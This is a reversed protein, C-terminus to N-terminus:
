RAMRRWPQWCVLSWVILAGWALGEIALLVSFLRQPEYFLEFAHAGNLTPLIWGNAFGDARFHLESNLPTGDVRLSWGDDYADTFVLAGGNRAVLTGAIDTASRRNFSRVTSFGRARRPGHLTRCRARRPSAFAAVVRASGIPMSLRRHPQWTFPARGSGTVVATLLLNGSAERLAASSQTVIAADLPKVLQPDAYGFRYASVWANAPNSDIISPQPLSYDRCHSAIDADVPNPRSELAYAVGTQVFAPRQRLFALTRGRFRRDLLRGYDGDVLTPGAGGHVIASSNPILRVYNSKPVYQAAYKLQLRDRPLLISPLAFRLNSRLVMAAVSMRAYLAQADALRGRYLLDAALAPFAGADYSFLSWSSGIPYYALPDVGAVDRAVEVPQQGPWLVIRGASRSTIQATLSALAGAAPPYTSFFKASNGLLPGATFIATASGVLVAGAFRLPSRWLAGIWSLSGAIGLAFPLAILQSAHFPERFLSASRVHVYTWALAGGFPGSSGTLIVIGLFYLIGQIAVAPNRRFLIVSAFSLLALVTGALQRYAGLFGGVLDRDYGSAYGSGTLAERWPSSQASVWSLVARERLFIGYDTGFYLTQVITAANTLVLFAFTWAVGRAMAGTRVTALFVLLVLPILVLFQVELACAAAAACGILLWKPDRSRVQACLGVILWPFAGYAVLDGFHGAVLQDTFGPSAVYALGAVSAIVRPCGFLSRAAYTAGFAAGLACVLLFCKLAVTVGLLKGALVIYLFLPALSPYSNPSGLDQPVWASLAFAAVDQLSASTVPWIWDHRFAPPAALQLLPRLVLLASAVCIAIM